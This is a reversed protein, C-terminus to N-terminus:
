NIVLLRKATRSGILAVDTAIEEGNPGPQPHPYDHIEAGTAAAADLFEARMTPYDLPMFAM